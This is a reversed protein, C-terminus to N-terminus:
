KYLVSQLYEYINTLVEGKEFYDIHTADDLVITKYVNEFYNALNLSFKYKIIEDKYSTIILPSVKVNQAYQISNFEYKALLKMPGYFINAADNYLSLARDYPSILILGNVNRESAVYTAVGTGISYGLIVINNVDVYEQEIAYDYAKLAAEFMTKDSPKGDSLGYGPYDIIMINYNEFYSYMGNKEFNVFTGSSDQYNGVFFIVLPAKENAIVNFKVWGNLKKGNNDIQIEKYQPSSSNVLLKYCEENYCTPFFLYDQVYSITGITIIMIILVIAIFGILNKTSKKLKM